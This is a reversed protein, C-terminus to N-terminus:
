ATSHHHIWASSKFFVILLTGKMMHKEIQNAKQQRCCSKQKNLRFLFARSESIKSCTFKVLYSLNNCSLDDVVANKKRYNRPTDGIYCNNFTLLYTLTTVLYTCKACPGWHLLSFITNLYRPISFLYLFLHDQMGIGSQMLWTYIRVVRHLHKSIKKKQKIGFKQLPNAAKMTQRM